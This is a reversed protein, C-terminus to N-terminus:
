NTATVYSVQGTNPNTYKYSASGSLTEATNYKFIYEYDGTDINLIAVAYEVGSLDTGDSDEKHLTISCKRTEEVEIVENSAKNHATLQGGGSDIVVEGSTHDTYVHMLVKGSTDSIQTGEVSNIYIGDLLYGTATKVGGIPDNQEYAILNQVTTVAM